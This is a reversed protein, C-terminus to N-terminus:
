TWTVVRVQMERETNSGIQLTAKFTNSLVRHNIVKNDEVESMRDGHPDNTSDRSNVSTKIEQVERQLGQTSGKQISNM